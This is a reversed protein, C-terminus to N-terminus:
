RAVERAIRQVEDIAWIMVVDGYLKRLTETLAVMLRESGRNGEAVYMALAFGYARERVLRDAQQAEAAIPPPLLTSRGVRATVPLRSRKM